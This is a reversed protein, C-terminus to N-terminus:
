LITFFGTETQVVASLNSLSSMHTYACLSRERERTLHTFASNDFLMEPYHFKERMIVNRLLM